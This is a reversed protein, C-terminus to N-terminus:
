VCITFCLDTLIVCILLVCIFFVLCLNVFCLNPVFITLVVKQVFAFGNNQAFGQNTNQFSYRTKWYMASKHKTLKHKWAKNKLVCIRVKEFRLNCLGFGVPIGFYYSCFCLIGTELVCILINFCLDLKYTIDLNTNRFM